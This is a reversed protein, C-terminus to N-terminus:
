PRRICLYTDKVRRRDKYVIFAMIGQMVSMDKSWAGQLSKWYLLFILCGLIETGQRM